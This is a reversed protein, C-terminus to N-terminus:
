RQETAAAKAASRSAIAVGALVILAGALMRPTIPEGLFLAGVAVAVLPSLYTILAVKTAELRSLLRFYLYFALASGLVGLYLFSAISTPGLDLPRDREFAAALLGFSAASIAMPVLTLSLPHVGEGWRKVVVQGLASVMPALLFIVAPLAPGAPAQLEQSVLVVMGAFGLLIGALKPLTLRDSPLLLHAFIAVFLPFTAFLVAALASPVFQEAWYVVGYSVFYSLFANAWWLRRETRGKGLPVRLRLAVPVLVLAAVAFRLGASTFPALGSLGVRIAAWTTGWIITLAV